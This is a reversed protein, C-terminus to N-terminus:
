KSVLYRNSRTNRIGPQNIILGENKGLSPKWELNGFEPSDNVQYLINGVRRYLVLIICSLCFPLYVFLTFLTIRKVVEEKGGEV